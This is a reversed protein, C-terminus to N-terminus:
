GCGLCSQRPVAFAVKGFQVKHYTISRSEPLAKLGASRSNDSTQIL